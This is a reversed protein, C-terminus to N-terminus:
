SVSSPNVKARLRFRMFLFAMLIGSQMTLQLYGAKIAADANDISLVLYLTSLYFLSALLTVLSVQKDRGFYQLLQALPLNFLVIAATLGLIPFLPTVSTYSEGLLNIAFDSLFISGIFVMFALGVLARWMRKSESGDFQFKQSALGNIIVTSFSSSVFQLPAFWKSVAAFSGLAFAGATAKVILQDITTALNTLSFVGLHFTRRYNFASFYDIKSLKWTKKEVAALILLTAVFQSISWYFLVVPPTLESWLSTSVILLLCLLRDLVLAFSLRTVRLTSRLLAQAIMFTSQSLVLLAVASIYSNGLIFSVLAGLAACVTLVIARASLQRQFGAQSLLGFSLEKTLSLSKGFDVCVILLNSVALALVFSGFSSPGLDRALLIFIVFQVVQSILSGVSLGAVSAFMGRESSSNM